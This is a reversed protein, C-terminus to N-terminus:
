STHGGLGHGTLHLAVFLLVLVLAIIGFVYVWRPTSEEGKMIAVTQWAAHQREILAAPAEGVVLTDRSDEL